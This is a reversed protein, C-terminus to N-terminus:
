KYNIQQQVYEGHNDVITVSKVGDLQEVITEIKLEGSRKEGGGALLRDIHELVLLHTIIMYLDARSYGNCYIHHTFTEFDDEYTCESHETLAVLWRRIEERQQEMQQWQGRLKEDIVSFMGGEKEYERRVTALQQRFTKANQETKPQLATCRRLQRISERLEAAIGSDLCSLNTLERDFYRPLNNAERSISHDWITLYIDIARRIMRVAAGVLGDSLNSKKIQRILEDVTDRIQQYSYEVYMIHPNVDCISVPKDIAHYLMEPRGMTEVWDIAIKVQNLEMDIDDTVRGILAKGMSAMQHVMETEHRSIHGVMLFNHFVAVARNDWANLPELVLFVVDGAKLRRYFALREEETKFYHRIGVWTILKM